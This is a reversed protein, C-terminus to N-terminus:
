FLCPSGHWSKSKGRHDFSETLISVTRERGRLSPELCIRSSLASQQVLLLYFCRDRPPRAQQSISHGSRVQTLWPFARYVCVCVRRCFCELAYLSVRHKIFLGKFPSYRRTQGHLWCWTKYVNWLIGGQKKVASGQRWFFFFFRHMCGLNLLGM